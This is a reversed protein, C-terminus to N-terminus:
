GFESATKQPSKGSVTENEAIAGAKAIFQGSTQKVQAVGDELM